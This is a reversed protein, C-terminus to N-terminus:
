QRDSDTLIIALASDNGVLQVHRSHCMSHLAICRFFLVLPLYIDRWQSKLFPYFLSSSVFSAEWCVYTTTFLYYPNVFLLCASFSLYSSSLSFTFHLLIVTVYSLCLQCLAWYHCNILMQDTPDSWSRPELEWRDGDSEEQMKESQKGRRGRKRGWKRQRLSVTRVSFWFTCATKEREYVWMYLGSQLNKCLKVNQQESDTETCETRFLVCFQMLTGLITHLWHFQIGLSYWNGKRWKHFNIYREKETDLTIPSLQTKSSSM